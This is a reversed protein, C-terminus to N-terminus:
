GAKVRQQYTERTRHCLTSPKRVGGRFLRFEGSEGAAPAALRTGIGRAAIVDGAVSFSIAALDSTPKVGPQARLSRLELRLPLLLLVLLSSASGSRFLLSYCSVRSASDM